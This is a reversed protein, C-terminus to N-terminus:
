IGWRQFLETIEVQESFLTFSYKIADDKFAQKMAYEVNSAYTKAYFEILYYRISMSEKVIRGYLSQYLAADSKYVEIAKYAAEIYDQWGTLVQKPLHATTFLNHHNTIAGDMMGVHGRLYETWTRFSDYYAKMPVSAARYYKDFFGATLAPLDADANWALKSNLYLKLTDFGTIGQVNYRAQDFIQYAGFDRAMRYLSQMPNFSDYWSFYNHFSTTYFWFYMTRSIAAWKEMTILYPKNVDANFDYYYDAWIPAYWIGVNDEPKVTEDIAAYGGGPLAKVPADETALYAFIVVNVKAGPYASALWAKLEKAVPNIFRILSASDTGYHDKLRKCEACECWPSYDESTFGISDLRNGDDYSASIANKMVDLVKSRMLNLSEADGRATYCLQYPLGGPTHETTSYWEPHETKYASPPLYVSFSNHVSPGIWPSPSFGLRRAAVSDYGVPGYNASRWLIDPNDILNFDYLPVIDLTDVYMEDPAYADFKITKRLFEYVSYLTGTTGGGILFVSKNLTKIKFGQGSVSAPDAVVGAQQALSTNGLSIYRSDANYILGKDTVIELQAGCSEEFFGAFENAAYLDDGYTAGERVVLKYESDGYEALYYGTEKLTTDEDDVNKKCGRSCGAIFAASIVATLIFM